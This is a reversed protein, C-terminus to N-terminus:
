DNTLVRLHGRRAVERGTERVPPPMPAVPRAAERVADALALLDDETPGPVTQDLALRLVEWGRPVSLREGHFAASTTPTRNPTRRWRASCPPRTPTSM